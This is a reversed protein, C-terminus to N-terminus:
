TIYKYNVFNKFLPLFESSTHKMIAYDKANVIGDSNVDCMMMSISIEDSYDPSFTYEIEVNEATITATKNDETVTRSFTGDTANGDVVANTLVISSPGGSPDNMAYVTATVNYSVPEIILTYDALSSSNFINTRIYYTEGKVLDYTFSFNTNSSSVDDNYKLQTMDSDYLYGLTDDKGESYFRFTGSVKATYPYYARMGKPNIKVSYTGCTVSDCNFAIDNNVCYYLPYSGAVCSLAFDPKIVDGDYAFSPDAISIVSSSFYLSNLSSCSSFAYNGVSTVSDAVSVNVLSSAGAFAYDGVSTVGQEIVINEVSLINLHWPSEFADTYNDMNGTGTIYLTKSKSDYNWDIDSGYAAFSLSIISIIVSVASAIAILKKYKM